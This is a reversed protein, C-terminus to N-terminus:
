QFNTDALASTAYAAWDAMLTRRKEFLDGRRYAAEVSDGLSHALAQECVDRPHPTAEGAWDRFSSRFGHITLDDRQMRRLAMLMAMNSLPRGKRQGPFLHPNDDIRPLSELLAVVPSALPVRHTKGAKMREGPITWTKTIFDVEDWTAELAESTRTATLITLEIASFALGERKSVERIFAPLEAWPLASHHKVKRVKSRKPLLKDLHGRWRAPNEGERLGRAKAADLVLEVRNRVRSATESKGLWIPKLIKLVHDTTIECPAKDGIVPHAYQKLTNEWQQAHKASKWGERHSQIYFDAVDKFTARQAKKSQAVSKQQQQIRRRENVPDVGQLILKRQVGAEARAKKLGVDDLSGLGMERRKGHLQYRLVWSKAGSARVILRLGDGDDYKGPAKIGEIEKVTLKGM